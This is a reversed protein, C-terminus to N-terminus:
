KLGLTHHYGLTSGIPKFTGIYEFQDHGSKVEGSSM